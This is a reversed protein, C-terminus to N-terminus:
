KFSVKIPCHDSVKTYSDGLEEPAADKCDLKKCHAGLEIKSIKGYATQSMVIHDLISSQHNGTNLPGAWYSTCALEESITRNGSDKLFRDFKEFDQDKINYGTTNLDGLVYLNKTKYEAVVESLLEYQIWRKQMAKLDGGAKLHMMAFVQTTNTKIHKLTVFLGPRLGECKTGSGSFRLDEDASVFEFVKPNFVVALKQKGGGGCKSMHVPYGPFNKKMLDRFGNDNIVEVFGMVDSKYEQLIKSLETIDTRGAAYDRDFNRINYSSLSWQAFATNLVLFSIAFIFSKM